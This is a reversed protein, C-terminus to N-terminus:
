LASIYRGGSVVPVRRAETAALSVASLSLVTFDCIAAKSLAARSVM